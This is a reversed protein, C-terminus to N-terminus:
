RLTAVRERASAPAPFYGAERVVQQGAASLAYRLLDLAAPPTPVGAYLLLRRSLPYAGTTVAVLDPSHYPGASDQALALPKLSDPTASLRGYGIGYEAEALSQALSAAGPADRVDKRFVGGCLGLRLMFVHAVSAKDQGYTGILRTSWEGTAGLDGWTRLARPGGCRRSTSFVADLQALTLREIPNRTNVFIGLADVAVPIGVPERGVQNRFAEREGDSLPRTMAALDASGGLLAPPGTSSGRGDARVLIGREALPKAWAEVLAVVTPSGVVRVPDHQTEDALAPSVLLALALACGIGRRGMAASM